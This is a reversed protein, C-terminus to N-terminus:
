FTVSDQTNTTAIWNPRLLQVDQVGGVTLGCAPPYDTQAKFTLVDTMASADEITVVAITGVQNISLFAHNTTITLIGITPQVEIRFTSGDKFAANDSFTVTFNAEQLGTPIGPAIVPEGWEFVSSVEPYNPCREVDLRLRIDRIWVGDLIDPLKNLDGEPLYLDDIKTHEFTTREYGVVYQSAALTELFKKYIPYLTPIYNNTYRDESTWNPDSLNCILLTLPVDAYDGDARFREEFVQVLCILPFRENPNIGGNEMQLRKMIHKWTGHKYQIDIGMDYATQEVVDSIIQPINLVNM